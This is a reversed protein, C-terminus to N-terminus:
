AGSANRVIVLAGASGRLAGGGSQSFTASDQLRVEFQPVPGNFQVVFRDHGAHAGVRATSMTAHAATGGSRAACTFGPPAAVAPGAPPPALPAPSESPAPSLSPQPTETPLVSATPAPSSAPTSRPAVTATRSPPSLRARLALVGGLATAVVLLAAVVALALGLRRRTAEAVPAAPAPQGVVAARIRAALAPRPPRTIADF